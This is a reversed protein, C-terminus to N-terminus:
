QDIADSQYGMRNHATRLRPEKSLGRPLWFGSFNPPLIGEEEDVMIRKIKLNFQTEVEAKYQIFTAPAESKAAMFYVM